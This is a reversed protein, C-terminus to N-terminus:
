QNILEDMCNTLKQTSSFTVAQNSVDALSLPCLMPDATYSSILAIKDDSLHTMCCFASGSSTHIYARVYPITNAYISAHIRTYTDTM